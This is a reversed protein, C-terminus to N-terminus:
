EYSVGRMRNVCCFADIPRIDEYFRQAAEPVLSTTDQEQLMRWTYSKIKEMLEAEDAEKDTLLHEMVCALTNLQDGSVLATLLTIDASYEDLIIKKENETEVKRFYLFPQSTERPVLRRSHIWDAAAPQEAPVPLDMKGVEETVVHPLYDEMLIVTDACALYEGSGGIVLVTSVGEQRYLERVRDTFPIIPENKVIIRMNRDRIMFNTASKDEDILLLGCNGCVAEIINAAQSVSGSAHRTTYATLLEKGPLFRFFPSLDLGSVPRGDEAYIKLASDDALVFERGDGPIHDYIGMEIADLLTSKGSYGGGTIVTVGKPIGMGRMMTGDAMPIWVELEKPAAFPVAEKMPATTGNERPLISGDAIFACLGNDKMFRRIQCQCDYVRVYRELEKQQVEGELTTEITDLIERIARVAAKANVSLANVLPVNFNMQLIYSAKERDYRIGNRRIMYEGAWQSAFQAKERVNKDINQYSKSLESIAPSLTRLLYTEHPLSDEPVSDGLFSGPIEVFLLLKESTRYSTGSFWFKLEKHSFIKQEEEETKTNYLWHLDKKNHGQMNLIIRKFNQM